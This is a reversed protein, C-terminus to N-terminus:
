RPNETNAPEANPIWKACQPRYSKVIEAMKDVTEILKKRISECEIYGLTYSIGALLSNIHNYQKRISEANAGNTIVAEELLKVLTTIEDNVNLSMDQVFEFADFTTAFTATTTTANKEM